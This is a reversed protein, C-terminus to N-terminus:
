GLDKMDDLFKVTTPFDTDALIKGIVNRLSKKTLLENIYGVQKPVIQNFLIRGVTTDQLKTVIEGEETKFPLRCRVKANLSVKGEAYAIEAEEPSYFVLGEGKVKHTETSHAEKTMFYLGLVMDQSPVTIPSGNAPNLINQSGLMLL